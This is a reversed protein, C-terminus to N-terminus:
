HYYYKRTKKNGVVRIHRTKRKKSGGTYGFAKSAGERKWIGGYHPQFQLMKVGNKDVLQEAQQPTLVFQTTIIKEYGHSSNHKIADFLSYKGPNIELQADIYWPTDSDDIKGINFFHGMSAERVYGAMVQEGRDLLKDAIDHSMKAVSQHSHAAMYEPSIVYIRPSERSWQTESMHAPRRANTKLWENLDTSTIGQGAVCYNQLESRDKYTGFGAYSASCRACDIAGVLNQDYHYAKDICSGEDATDIWHTLRPQSIKSRLSNYLVAIVTDEDKNTIVTVNEDTFARRGDTTPTSRVSKVIGKVDRKSISNDGMNKDAGSTFGLEDRKISIVKDKEKNLLISFGDAKILWKDSGFRKEHGRYGKVIQLIRYYNTNNNRDSVFQRASYSFNDETKKEKKETVGIVISKTDNTVITLNKYKFELRDSFLKSKTPTVNQLIYDLLDHGIGANELNEKAKETVQYKNVYTTIIHTGNDNTIVVTYDRGDRGSETYKRRKDGKDGVIEEFNDTRLIRKIDEESLERDTMRELAHSSFTIPPIFLPTTAKLSSAKATVLTTKNAAYRMDPKGSKTLRATSKTPVYSRTLATGPTWQSISTDPNDHSIIGSEIMKIMKPSYSMQAQPLIAELEEKTYNEISSPSEKLEDLIEMPSKSGGIFFRFKKHKNKRTRKNKNFIKKISKM